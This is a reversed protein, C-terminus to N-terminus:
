IGPSARFSNAELLAKTQERLLFSRVVGRSREAQPTDLSDLIDVVSEVDHLRESPNLGAELYTAFARDFGSAVLGRIPQVRRQARIGNSASVVSTRHAREYGDATAMKLLTMCADEQREGQLAASRAITAPIPFRDDFAEWDIMGNFHRILEPIGYICGAAVAEHAVPDLARAEMFGPLCGRRWSDSSGPRLSHVIEKALQEDDSGWHAHRTTSTNRLGIVKAITAPTCRPPVKALLAVADLERKPTAALAADVRMGARLMADISRTSSYQMAFFYPTAEIELDVGDTMWKLVRPIPLPTSLAMPMARGIAEVEEDLDLIAAAIMMRSAAEVFEQTVTAGDERRQHVCQAFRCAASSIAAKFGDLPDLLHIAIIPASGPVPHAVVSPSMAVTLLAEIRKVVAPLHNVQSAEDEPIDFAGKDVLGQLWPLGHLCPDELDQDPQSANALAERTGLRSVEFLQACLLAENSFDSGGASLPAHKSM